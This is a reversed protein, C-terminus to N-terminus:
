RVTIRAMVRAFREFISPGVVTDMPLSHLKPLFVIEPLKLTTFDVQLSTNVPNEIRLPAIAGRFQGLQIELLKNVFRYDQFMQFHRILKIEKQIFPGWTNRHHIVFWESLTLQHDSPPFRDSRALVYKKYLSQHGQAWQDETKSEAMSFIKFQNTKHVHSSVSLVSRLIAEEFEDKINQIIHGQVHAGEPIITIFTPPTPPHLSSFSTPPPPASPRATSPGASSPGASSPGASSSTPAEEFTPPPPITTSSIPSSSSTAPFLTPSSIHKPIPKKSPEPAPPASFSTPPSTPTPTEEKPVSQTPTPPAPVFLQVRVFESLNPVLQKLSGLESRIEQLETKVAGIEKIETSKSIFISQVESQLSCLIEGHANLRNIVPKMHVHIKRKKSRHHAKRTLLPIRPAVGKRMGGYSIIPELVEDSVDEVIGEDATPVNPINEMFTNEQEGEAHSITELIVSEEITAAPVTPPIVVESSHGIPEIHEHAIEEIRRM